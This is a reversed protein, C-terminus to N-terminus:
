GEQEQEQEEEFDGQTGDQNSEVRRYSLVHFSYLVEDDNPIASTNFSLQEVYKPLLILEYFPLFAKRLRRIRLM